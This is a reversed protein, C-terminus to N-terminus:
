LIHAADHAADHSLKNIWATQDAGKNNAAQM